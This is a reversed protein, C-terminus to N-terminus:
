NLRNSSKLAMEFAFTKEKKDLGLGFNTKDVLLKLLFEEWNSLKKSNIEFKINQVEISIENKM